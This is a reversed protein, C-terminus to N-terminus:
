YKSKLGIDGLRENLFDHATKGALDVDPRPHFFLAASLRGTDTPKGPARVEHPTSMFEKHLRHLMDGTQVLSCDEPPQALIYEGDRRRVWLSSKTSPPLSTVFNIDTHKCGWAVKGIEEQKLPPYHIARMRSPGDIVLNGIYESDKGLFQSIARMVALGPVTLSSYLSRMALEFTPVEEPWVNPHYPKPYKAIVPNALNLGTLEDPGMFWNEKADPMDEGDLIKKCALATESKPPTWGVQHDLKEHEYRKKIAEPLDFVKRFEPYVNKLLNTIGRTRVFIFGIDHMAQGVLEIAKPDTRLDSLDVVPIEKLM